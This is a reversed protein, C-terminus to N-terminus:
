NYKILPKNIIKLNSDLEGFDIIVISKAEQYPKSDASKQCFPDILVSHNNIAKSLRFDECFFEFFFRNEYTWYRYYSAKGLTSETLEGDVISLNTYSLNEPKSRFPNFDRKKKKLLEVDRKKGAEEESLIKQQNHIDKESIKPESTCSMPTNKENKILYGCADKSKVSKGNCLDVTKTKGDNQGIIKSSNKKREKLLLLFLYICIGIVVICICLLVISILIFNERLIENFM